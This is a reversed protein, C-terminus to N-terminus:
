VAAYAAALIAIAVTAAMCLLGLTVVREEVQETKPGQAATRRRFSSLFKPTLRM